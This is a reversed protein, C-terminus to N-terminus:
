EMVEDAIALLTSPVKLGLAKATRLNVVLEFKSAQLVPLDAPKAGDLIKGTYIGGQRMAETLSTGYSLLGGAAVFERTFYITPIARRAAEAVIRDRSITFFPDNAVIVAGARLQAFSAFAAEIEDVTAARVVRIEQKIAAGADQLERLQVEIDPYTPNVLAGIVVVKGVFQHILDLRKANLQTAVWSVGTVNGGPRNLSSVLRGSIPDGGSVFVIPIDATAAKAALAPANGGVAAIVAVRRAVLDAALAPLEGYHGNAWRYDIAVNQGEVYGADTLGHRYGALYPGYSESSLSCLWGIVPIAAWAPRPWAAVAGLLRIFERRRM